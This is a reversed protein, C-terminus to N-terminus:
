QDEHTANADDAFAANADDAWVALDGPKALDVGIQTSQLGILISVSVTEPSQM